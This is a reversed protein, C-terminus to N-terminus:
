YDKNNMMLTFHRRKKDELRKIVCPGEHKERFESRLRSLSRIFVHHFVWQKAVFTPRSGSQTRTSGTCVVKEKPIHGTVKVVEEM